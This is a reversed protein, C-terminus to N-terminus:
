RVPLCCYSLTGAPLPRALIDRPSCLVRCVARAASPAARPCGSLLATYFTFLVFHKQNNAGVCNNVWPCHHDMKYICRDCQSCHHARPPKYGNCRSCMPLSQPALAPAPCSSCPPRTASPFISCLLVAATPLSHCLALCLLSACSAHVGQEMQCEHPQYDLRHATAVRVPNTRARACPRARPAAACPVAGPDTTMTRAHSTVSLVSILFFSYKLLYYATTPGLWPYLLAGDVVYDAFWLQSRATCTTRTTFASRAARRQKCSTNAPHCACWAGPPESAASVARTM